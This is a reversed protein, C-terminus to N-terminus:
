KAHVDKKEAEQQAQSKEKAETIKDMYDLFNMTPLMLPGYVARATFSLLYERIVTYLMSAGNVIFIKEWDDKKMFPPAIRFEGEVEVAVDYPAKNENKNELAIYLKLHVYSKGDRNEVSSWSLQESIEVGILSDANCSHSSEVDTRARVYGLNFHYRELQLPSQQM